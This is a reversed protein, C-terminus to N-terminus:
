GGNGITFYKEIAKKGNVTFVLHYEGPPFGRGEIAIRASFVGENKPLRGGNEDFLLVEKKSGPKRLYWTVGFRDTPKAGEYFVFLYFPRKGDPLHDTVTNADPEGSPLKRTAIVANTLISGAYVITREKPRRSAPTKPPRIQTSKKNLCREYTQKSRLYRHRLRAFSLDDLTAMGEDLERYNRLHRRYEEACRNQTAASVGRMGPGRKLSKGSCRSYASRAKRFTHLSQILELDSVKADAIERILDNYSALSEQFLKQCRHSGNSITHSSHGPSHAAAKAKVKDATDVLIGGREVGSAVGVGGSLTSRHHMRSGSLMDATDVLIMGKEGRAAGKPHVSWEIWDVQIDHGTYWGYSHMIFRIYPMKLPAAKVVTEKGDIRYRVLNTEPDYLIEETFWRDWRPTIVGYNGTRRWDIGSLVFGHKAPVYQRVGPKEYVYNYYTVNFLNKGFASLWAAKRSPMRVTAGDTQYFWVGGEFYDNAYHVKVRRRLTFIEGKRLPIPRSAVFASRDTRDCRLDLMGDHVLGRASLRRLTEWQYVEWVSPDFRDFDDRHSKSGVVNHDTPGLGKGGTVGHGSSAVRQGRDGGQKDPKPHDFRHESGQPRSIGAVKKVGSICAENRKPSPVVNKLWCRPRPGQITNPKVYTWAKCRRDRECAQRCLRPDPRPLDFDRYDGGLRDISLEMGHGIKPVRGSHPSSVKTVGEHRSQTGQKKKAGPHVTGPVTARRSVEYISNAWTGGCIEQANGACKMDCNKAPGYKGYRNGCFCSNSYQVGAYRYGGKGCLRICREVSMSNDFLYGAEALDRGQTGYPDGKDKFCGLYRHEKPPIWRRGSDDPVVNSGAGSKGKGACTISIFGDCFEQDCIKGDGIVYTPSQAGIDSDEEFAIAKQFGKAQCFADAAGQGCEQAWHKCWDLRYGHIKPYPFTKQVRLPAKTGIVSSTNGKSKGSQPRKKLTGEGPSSSSSQGKKVLRGAVPPTHTKGFRGGHDNTPINTTKRDSTPTAKSSVATQKQSSTSKEGNKSVGVGFGTRVKTRSNSAPNKRTAATSSKSATQGGNKAGKPRCRDNLRIGVTRGNVDVGEICSDITEEQCSLGFVGRKLFDNHRIDISETPDLPAYKSLSARCSRRKTERDITWQVDAQYAHCSLSLSTVKGRRSKPLVGDYFVRGTPPSSKYHPVYVEYHIGDHRKTTYVIYGTNYSGSQIGTCIAYDEVDRITRFERWKSWKGYGGMWYSFLIKLDGGVRQARYRQRWPDEIHMPRDPNVIDTDAYSPIAFVGTHFMVTAIWMMVAIWTGGMGNRVKKM